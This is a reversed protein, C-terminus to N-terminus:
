STPHATYVINHGQVSFNAASYGTAPLAIEAHGTEGPAYLVDVILSHLIKSYNETLGIGGFDITGTQGTFAVTAALGQLPAPGELRLTGSNIAITGGSIPGTAILSGNHTVDITGGAQQTVTNEVTVTGDDAVIRGTNTMAEEIQFRGGSLAEMVGVNTGNLGDLVFTGHNAAVALQDNEFGGAMDVQLTAPKAIGAVAMVGLNQLTTGAPV